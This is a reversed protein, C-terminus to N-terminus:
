KKRRRSLILYSGATFLLGIFPEPVPIGGIAFQGDVDVVSWVLKNNFDIGHHGMVFDPKDVLRKIDARSTRRILRISRLWTGRLRGLRMMRVSNARVRSARLDSFRIRARLLLQGDPLTSDFTLTGDLLQFGAQVKDSLKLGSGPNYSLVVAGDQDSLNKIRIGTISPNTGGNIDLVAEDNQSGAKGLTVQVGLASFQVLCVMVLVMAAFGARGLVMEKVM